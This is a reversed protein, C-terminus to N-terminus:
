ETRLAEIPNLRSAKRAPLLGALTAVIMLAIILGAIQWYNFILLPDSGLGLKKAIWPNLAYGLIVALGSGLVGGLFGILAAELRFLQTIDRKRMGLAKMLGIERTRQLVSIYMTNIIGFLSAIVAIIGFAVVIGQLITIIQTLFQETDAVSQAGYGDKKIQNQVADLKKTDTGGTVKVFATLYRHYNATGRTTLDSLKEADKLNAYIYLTTGPQSFTSVKSVAAITYTQTSVAPNTLQALTAANAGGSSLVSQLSTQDFAPQVALTITKGLADDPSSFGLSDLFGSPLIVSGTTLDSGVSGAALDPKQSSSYAQLTGVYRRMGPRTVYQLAVSLGPRVREVGPIQALQTLDGDTLRKVQTLAGAGSTINGFSADYEQPKTTDTRNFLSTDATVILESPDFNSTIIKKVYSQVGNSAGLTLTLAFTGVAIAIATLLTRAKASGLSRGSRRILDTTYM